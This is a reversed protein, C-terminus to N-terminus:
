YLKTLFFNRHYNIVYNVALSQCFYILGETKISFINFFPTISTFIWFKGFNLLPFYCQKNRTGILVVIGRMVPGLEALMKQLEKVRKKM